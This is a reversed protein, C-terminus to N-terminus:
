KLLSKIAENIENLRAKYHKEITDHLHRVLNLTAQDNESVGGISFSSTNEAGGEGSVNMKTWHKTCKIHDLMKEIKEKEKIFVTIKAVSM